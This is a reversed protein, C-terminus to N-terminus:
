VAQRKYLTKWSKEDGDTSERRTHRGTFPALLAIAQTVLRRWLSHILPILHGQTESVCVVCQPALVFYMFIVSANKM